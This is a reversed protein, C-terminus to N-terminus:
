SPAISSFFYSLDELPPLCLKENDPLLAATAFCDNESFSVGSVLVTVNPPENSVAGCLLHGAVAVVVIPFFSSMSSSSVRCIEFLRDPAIIFGGSRLRVIEFLWSLSDFGFSVKVNFRSLGSTLSALGM